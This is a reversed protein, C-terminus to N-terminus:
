GTSTAALGFHDGSTSLPQQPQGIAVASLLNECQRVCLLRRFFETRTKVFPQSRQSGVDLSVSNMAESMAENSLM